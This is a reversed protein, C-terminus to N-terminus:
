IVLWHTLLTSRGTNRGSAASAVMETLICDYSRTSPRSGLSSRPRATPLATTSSSGLSHISAKVFCRNIVSGIYQEENKAATLLVFQNAM